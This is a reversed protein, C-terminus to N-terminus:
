QLRSLFESSTESVDGRSTLSRMSVDGRSGFVDTATVDHLHRGPTLALLKRNWLDGSDGRSILRPLQAVDGRRRQWHSVLMKLQWGAFVKKVYIQTINIRYRTYMDFIWSCLASPYIMMTNIANFISHYAKVRCM